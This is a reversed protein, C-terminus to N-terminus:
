KKKLKNTINTNHRRYRYLPLNLRSIKYKKEYRKRLEVEENIRLKENYLGLDILHSTKFIIGCAIPNKLSNERRIVTERDNVVLYDCSVADTFEKNGEIFELLFYLFNKNVYDDSDLRVIYNSKTNKIGLNVSYPLGMNKKNKIIKINDSFKNIIKLSNDKSCDDIVIVKYFKKDLTQDLISRLCRAIFLEHNYCPIIVTIKSM